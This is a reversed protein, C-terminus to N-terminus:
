TYLKIGTKGLKPDCAFPTIKAIKRPISKEVQLSPILLIKATMYVTIVKEEMSYPPIEKLIEGKKLILAKILHEKEDLLAFYTGKFSRTRAYEYGDELTRAPAPTYEKEMAELLEQFLKMTQELYNKGSKAEIFEGLKNIRENIITAKTIWTSPMYEYKAQPLKM